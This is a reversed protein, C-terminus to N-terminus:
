LLNNLDAEASVRHTEISENITNLKAQESTAAEEDQANYADIFAISSSIYEQYSTVLSLVSEPPAEFSNVQSSLIDVLAQCSSLSSKVVTPEGQFNLSSLCDSIGKDQDTFTILLLSQNYLGIQDTINRLTEQDQLLQEEYESGNESAKDLLSNDIQIIDSAIKRNQDLLLLLEQIEATESSTLSDPLSASLNNIQQTNRNM